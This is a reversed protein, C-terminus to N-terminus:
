SMSGRRDDLSTLFDLVAQQMAGNDPRDHTGPYLRSESPGGAMEELNAASVPPALPDRDGHLFLTPCTIDQVYLMPQVRDAHVGTVLATVARAMAFVYAPLPIRDTMADFIRRLRDFTGDTVLGRVSPRPHQGLAIISAAGGMSVGYVVIHDFGTEELWDLAAEVTEAEALGITTRGFRNDGHSPFDFALVNYRPSLASILPLMWSKDRSRGHCVLVVRDSQPHPFFWGPSGDPLVVDEARLGFHEPRGHNWFRRLPNPIAAAIVFGGIVLLHAVLLGLLALILPSM